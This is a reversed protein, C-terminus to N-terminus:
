KGFIAKFKSGNESVSTEDFKLGRIGPKQIWRSRDDVFIVGNCNAMMMEALKSDDKSTLGGKIYEHYIYWNNGKPDIFKPRGEWYYEKGHSLPDEVMHGWDDLIDIFEPNKGIITKIRNEDQTTYATFSVNGKTEFEKSVTGTKVIFYKSEAMKENFFDEQVSKRLAINVAPRIDNNKWAGSKVAKAISGFLGIYWAVIIVILFLLLIEYM